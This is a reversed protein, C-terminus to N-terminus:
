PKFSVDALQERLWDARYIDRQEPESEAGMLLQMHGPQVSLMLREIREIDLHRLMRVEVGLRLASLYDLSEDAQAMRANQLLALARAVCDEILSPNDRLLRLRAFREQDVVANVQRLLGAIVDNETQGLTGQNSIQFMHGAADSGEGGVGRVMLRLRDLARLVADLDETLRLGLLHVMVSARLGTGVNSPCATLYGLKSSFAYDLSEELRTDLADAEAWAGWLDMGPQITQIRLHDEENIMVSLRGDFDTVLGAGAGRDMLDGSILRRENLQQLTLADLDEVKLVEPQRMGGGDAVAKAVRDFVRRRGEEDSWDPFREGRLNRALRVRCCLAVAGCASPAPRAAREITEPSRM